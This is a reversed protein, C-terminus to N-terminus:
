EKDNNPEQIVNPLKDSFMDKGQAKKMEELAYKKMFLGISAGTAEIRLTAVMASINGSLYDEIAQEKTNLPNGISRQVILELAKYQQPHEDNRSIEIIAKVATETESSFLQKVHQTLASPKRGSNLRSGGHNNDTAM